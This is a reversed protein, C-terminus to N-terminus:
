AMSGMFERAFALETEGSKGSLMRAIEAVRDDGTLLAIRTHTRGADEITRAVRFHRAAYRAIQPLHTIVILQRTSAIEEMKRGVNLATEGGIGVDIEDFVLTHAPVDAGLVKKFALMIRSIEGGSAIERLKRFATERVPAFVFEAGDLGRDDLTHSKGDHTLTLGTPNPTFACSIRSGKMGLFELEGKLADEFKPVAKKRSERLAEAVAMTKAAQARLAKLCDEKQLAVDELFALKGRAEELRLRLGEFDLVYKKKLSETRSLRGQLADVDVGTEAGTLRDAALDAAEEVAADAERLKSLGPDFLPDIKALEVFHNIAEGIAARAQSLQEDAKALLRGSKEAAAQQRVTDRLKQYEEDSILHDGLERITFELFEKERRVEAERKELEKKEEVLRSLDKWCGKYDLAQAELGAFRDFLSAHERVQFLFQNDHQGHLDLLLEGLEKLAGVRVVQDNLLCKGRGELDVERRVTILGDEPEIGLAGLRELIEPRKRVDFVSIVRAFTKGPMIRDAGLKEGLTASLAGLFVSKGAGTEGTIVNFGAHFDLKAGEIFLFNQISIQVLM